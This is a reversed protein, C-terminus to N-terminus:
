LRSMCANNGEVLMCNENGYLPYGLKIFVILCCFTWLLFILSFSLFPNLWFLLIFLVAISEPIWCDCLNIDVRRLLCSFNSCVLQYCGTSKDTTHSFFSCSIIKFLKIAINNEERRISQCSLLYQKIFGCKKKVM